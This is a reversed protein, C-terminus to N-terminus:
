FSTEGTNALLPGSKDFNIEDFGLPIWGEAWRLKRRHSCRGMFIDLQGACGPSHFMILTKVSRISIVACLYIEEMAVKRAAIVSGLCRSSLQNHPLQLEALGLCGLRPVSELKSARGLLSTNFVSLSFSHSIPFHFPM